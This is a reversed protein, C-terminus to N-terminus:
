VEIFDKGMTKKLSYFGWEDKDRRSYSTICICCSVDDVDVEACKYANSSIVGVDFLIGNVDRNLLGIIDSILEFLADLFREAGEYGKAFLRLAENNIYLQEKNADYTGRASYLRGREDCCAVKFHTVYDTEADAWVMVRYITDRCDPFVRDDFDRVKQVLVRAVESRFQLPQKEGIM